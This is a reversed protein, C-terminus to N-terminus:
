FASTDKHARMVCQTRTHLAHAHTHTHQPCRGNSEPMRRHWAATQIHSAAMKCTSRIFSRDVYPRLGHLFYLSGEQHTARIVKCTSRTCSRRTTLSRTRSSRSTTGAAACPVCQRETWRTTARVAAALPWVAAAAAAVAAAAFAAAAAAAAGGVCVGVRGVRGVCGTMWQVGCHGAGAGAGPIQGRSVLKRWHRLVRETQVAPVGAAGRLRLVSLGGCCMDCRRSLPGARRKQCRGLGM